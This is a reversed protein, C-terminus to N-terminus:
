ATHMFIQRSIERSHAALEGYIGSIKNEGMRQKPGSVSLAAVPEGHKNFVAVAVCVLGYELEEDDLAYGSNRVKTLQAILEERTCITNETRPTLEMDRIIADREAEGMFALITKGVATCYMPMRQGISTCIRMSHPSEKKEVYVVDTGDPIVLNVTEGTAEVLQRIHPAGIERIGSRVNASLRFLEIGLRYKDGGPAKEVLKNSVLTNVLGFVTSKHLGLRKGLETIGLEDEHEFCRLIEIARDVSQITTRGNHGEM